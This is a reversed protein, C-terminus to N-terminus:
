GNQVEGKRRWISKGVERWFYSDNRKSERHNLPFGLFICSGILQKYCWPQMNSCQCIARSCIDRYVQLIGSCAKPLQQVSQRYWPNLSKAIVKLYWFFTLWKTCIYATYNSSFVVSHLSQYILKGEFFVALRNCSYGM